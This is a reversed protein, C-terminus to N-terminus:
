YRPVLGDCERSWADIGGKLNAINKFGSHVLYGAAQQSRMGHHCIVIIEQHADLEGLRQPIQNLPILVSNTIGAYKFEHPERVDLLFLPEGLTMKNKLETVSLQKVSM